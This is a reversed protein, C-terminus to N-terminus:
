VSIADLKVSQLSQTQCKWHMSSALNNQIHIVSSVSYMYVTSRPRMQLVKTSDACFIHTHTHTPAHMCTHMCARMHTFAHVHARTCTHTHTHTHTYMTKTLYKGQIQATKLEMNWQTTSTKNFTKIYIILWFAFKEVSLCYLQITNYSNIQWNEFVM